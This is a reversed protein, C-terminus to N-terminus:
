KPFLFTMSFRGRWDDAGGTSSNAYYGVGAQFSVPQTGFTVLKSVLANIPVTWEESNWNYTSETQLAFTWADPTTYSMFPQLFSANITNGDDFSWIHNALVGITWPGTQTLAIASPGAGWEGIGLRNDTATPLYIIPGVGWILGSSTPENPSLFLSLLTDGIGFQSGSNGFVDDQYKIPVITRTILNWDDDLVFPIVPQVNLTLAKGDAPGYGRDYNFQFPISIMSAIPNSLKKSLQLETEANANGEGMSFIYLSTLAILIVPRVGVCLNKHWKSNIYFM